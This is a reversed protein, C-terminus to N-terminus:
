YRDRAWPNHEPFLKWNIVDERIMINEGEFWLEHYFYWNPLELIDSYMSFRNKEPNMADDIEKLLSSKKAFDYLVYITPYEKFFHLNNKIFQKLVRKGLKKKCIYEAQKFANIIDANTGTRFLEKIDIYKTNKTDVDLYQHNYGIEKKNEDNFTMNLVINLFTWIAKSFEHIDECKMKECLYHFDNIIDREDCMGITTNNKPFICFTFTKAFAKAYGRDAICITSKNRKPYESWSPLVDSMLKTHVNPGTISVRTGPTVIAALHNEQSQDGRYIRGGGKYFALAHSYEPQSIAEKIRDIDELYIYKNRTKTSLPDALIPNKNLQEKLSALLIKEITKTSYM